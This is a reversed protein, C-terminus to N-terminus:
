VALSKEFEEAVVSAFEPDNLHADVKKVLIDKNLKGTLTDIFVKDADPDYFLKGPRNLQSFGKLPLIVKVIGKAKNLKEAITEAVQIMEEKNLRMTTAQPNHYNFTRGKDRFQAPVAEPPGFNIFDVAGCTYIQAIGKKGAAELRDPGADAKGGFLHNGIENTGLEIVGDVPNNAIFDELSRGGPGISHFVVIEYNKGKWINRINEECPTVDGLRTMGVVTKDSKAPWAVNAMGVIAAAANDVIKKSFTNVTSIDVVSPMMTVDKNGMFQTGGAQAVKSSVMLKPVGVPLARMVETATATTMGGGLSFIGDLKGEEFLKKVIVIAGQAMMAMQKGEAGIALIDQYTSGAAKAVEERSIEPVFDPKADSVGVDLVVCKAGEAEIQSKLYKTIEGKTDIRGLCVVTKQV